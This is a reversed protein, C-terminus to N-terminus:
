NRELSLFETMIWGNPHSRSPYTKWENLFRLRRKNDGGALREAEATHWM